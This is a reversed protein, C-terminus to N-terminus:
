VLLNSTQKPGDSSELNQAINRMEQDSLEIGTVERVIQSYPSIRLAYEDIETVDFSGSIQLQNLQESKM